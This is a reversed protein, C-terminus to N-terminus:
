VTVIDYELYADDDDSTQTGDYSGDTIGDTDDGTWTGSQINYQVTLGKTNDSGDIDLTDDFTGDDDWMSIVIKHTQVNDPVNKTYEWNVTNLTGLTVSWYTTESPARTEYEDNIEIKFYVQAENSWLDVEDIVKFKKLTIKIKAYKYPM